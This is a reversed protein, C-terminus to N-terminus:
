MGAQRAERTSGITANLYSYLDKDITDLTRCHCRLPAM